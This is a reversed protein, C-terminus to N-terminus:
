QRIESEVAEFTVSQGTREWEDSGTVKEYHPLYGARLRRKAETDMGCHADRAEAMDPPPGQGDGTYSMMLSPPGLPLDPYQDIAWTHITKGYTQQLELM